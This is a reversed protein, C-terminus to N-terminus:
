TIFEFGFGQVFPLMQLHINFYKIVVPLTAKTASGVALTGEQRRQLVTDTVQLLSGIETHGTAGCLKVAIEKEPGAKDCVIM